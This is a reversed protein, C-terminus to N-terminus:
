SISVGMNIQAVQVSAATPGATNPLKKAVSTSTSTATLSSTATSRRNMGSDVISHLTGDIDMSQLLAITSESAKTVLSM